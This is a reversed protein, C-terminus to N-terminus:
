INNQLAAFIRAMDAKVQAAVIAQIEKVMAESFIQSNVIPAAENAVPNLEGKRKMYSILNNVSKADRSLGLNTNILEAIAAHSAKGYNEKILRKEEPSYPVKAARNFNTVNNETNAKNLGIGAMLSEKTIAKNAQPEAPAATDVPENYVKPTKKAANSKTSM